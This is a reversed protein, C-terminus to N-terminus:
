YGVYKISQFSIGDTGSNTGISIIPLIPNLTATCKTRFYTNQESMLFEATKRNVHQEKYRMELQILDAIQLLKNSNPMFWLALSLADKYSTQDIGEINFANGDYVGINKMIDTFDQTDSFADYVNSPENVSFIMNYKQMPVVANYDALLKVDACTEYYAWAIHAAVSYSNGSDFTDSNVMANYLNNIFRATLIYDYASQQNVTESASNGFIYEVCAGSFTLNDTDNLEAGIAPGTYSELANNRCPFYKVIYSNLLLNTEREESLMNINGSINQAIDICDEAAQQANGYLDEVSEYDSFYEAAFSVDINVDIESYSDADDASLASSESGIHLAADKITNNIADIDNQNIIDKVTGTRSPLINISAENVTVNYSLDYKIDDKFYEHMTKLANLMEQPIDEASGIAAHGKAASYLHASVYDAKDNMDSFFTDANYYNLSYDEPKVYYKARSLIQRKLVSTYTLNYLGETEVSDVRYFKTINNGRYGSALDSNFLLYDKYNEDEASESDIAMIGYRDYLDNNYSAIVSTAASTNAEGLQTKAAQFRGAELVLTGLSLIGILMLSVLVTIVGNENKKSNVHTVERGRDM